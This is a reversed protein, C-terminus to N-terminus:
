FSDSIFPRINNQLKKSQRYLLRKLGLNVLFLVGLSHAKRTHTANPFVYHATPTQYLRDLRQFAKTDIISTEINTLHIYGYLPDCIERKIFIDDFSMHFTLEYNTYINKFLKM